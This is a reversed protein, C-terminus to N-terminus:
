YIGARDVPVSGMRDIVPYGPPYDDYCDGHLRGHFLRAEGDEAGMHKAPLDGMRSALRWVALLIALVLGAEFLGNVFAGPRYAHLGRSLVLNAVFAAALVWPLAGLARARVGQGAHPRKKVLVTTM